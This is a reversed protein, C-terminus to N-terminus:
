GLRNWVGNYFTYVGKGGAGPNFNVGDAGVTLGEERKEPEVNLFEVNRMLGLEMAASIRWFERQVYATFEQITEPASVTDPVYLGSPDGKAM